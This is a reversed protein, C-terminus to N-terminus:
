RGKNRAAAEVKQIADIVLQPEQPQIYHGAKQAVQHSSKTSLQCLNNQWQEWLQELKDSVYNPLTPEMRWQPSHSIVVLPIDGLNTVTSVENGSAVLDLHEPNSKPDAIQGALFARAKKVSEPESSSEPPLAALWQSWQGPYSSDVLVMGRVESPYRAAYLRVTFGGVSHGVLIYPPAIKANELLAHLDRVVDESTRFANTVASSKGLGARDYVCVTTNKDVGDIVAKWTGGEVGPEGLGAEVVVPLSGNGYTALHLTRGGIDVDKESQGTTSNTETPGALVTGAATVLSGVIILNLNLWQRM